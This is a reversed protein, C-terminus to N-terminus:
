KSKAKKTAILVVHTEVTGDRKTYPLKIHKLLSFGVEEFILEFFSFSYYRFYMRDGTSGKQFHSDEPKGEVYSMYLIGNKNLLNYCNLILIELDKQVLYPICFGCIIGDFVADINSINRCDMTEFRAKPCNKQALQVMTPAVDIGFLKYSPNKNLLQRSINGPGSAIEFIHANSNNILSCFTDYSDNYLNLDMFAVNYLDALKDWTRITEDNLEDESM